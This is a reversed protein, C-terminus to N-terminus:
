RSGMPWSGMPATIQPSLLFPFFYSLTSNMLVLLLAPLSFRFAPPRTELSIFPSFTCFILLTLSHLHFTFAHQSVVPFFSFISTEDKSPNNPFSSSSLFFLSLSAPPFPHRLSTIQSRSPSPLSCPNILITREM